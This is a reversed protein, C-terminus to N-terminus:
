RGQAETRAVDGRGGRAVGLGWRAATRCASTVDRRHTKVRPGRSRRACAWTAMARLASVGGEAAADSRGDGEARSRADDFPSSGRCSTRSRSGAPM